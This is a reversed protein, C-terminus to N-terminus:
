LPHLVNQDAADTQSVVALVRVLDDLAVVAAHGHVFTLACVKLCLEFTKPQTEIM